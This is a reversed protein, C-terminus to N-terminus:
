REFVGLVRAVAAAPEPALAGRHRAFAEHVALRDAPEPEIWGCVAARRASQLLRAQAAEAHPGAGAAAAVLVAGGAWFGRQGAAALLYGEIAASDSVLERLLAGDLRGRALLAQVAVRRTAPDTALVRLDSEDAEGLELLGILAARRLRPTESTLHDIAMGVGEPRRAVCASEVLRAMRHISGTALELARPWADDAHRLQLAAVRRVRRSRDLLLPVLAARISDDAPDAATAATFRVSPHRDGLFKLRAAGTAVRAAMGRVRPERAGSADIEHGLEVAVSWAAAALHGVETLAVQTLARGGAPAALRERVGARWDSGWPRRAPAHLTQAAYALADVELARLRQRALDRVQPVHDDAAVALAVAARDDAALARLGAERLYGVSHATLVLALAHRDAISARGLVASARAAFMVPHGYQWGSSLHNSLWTLTPLLESVPVAAALAVLEEHDGTALMADFAARLALHRVPDTV